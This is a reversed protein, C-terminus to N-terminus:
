IVQLAHLASKNVDLETSVKKALDIVDLELSDLKVFM